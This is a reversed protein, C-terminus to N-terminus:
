SMCPSSGNVGPAAATSIMSQSKAGTPASGRGCPVLGGMMSRGMRYLIGQQVTAATDPMRKNTWLGGTEREAYAAASKEGRFSASSQFTRAALRYTDAGVVIGVDQLTLAWLGDIGGAHAAAFADFDAIATPAVPDTLRQFIGVLDSGAGAGNLGQKDLEDSLVLSLNERLVSEFNGQGM